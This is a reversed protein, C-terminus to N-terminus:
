LKFYVILKGDDRREVTDIHEILHEWSILDKYKTMDGYREGEDEDMADSDKVKKAAQSSPRGRKVPAKTAPVDDESEAVVKQKPPRGRKKPPASIPEPEDEPTARKRIAANTSPKATSSLSESKRPAASTSAPKKPGPKEGKKNQRSWYNDILDQCNSSLLFADSSAAFCLYSQKM